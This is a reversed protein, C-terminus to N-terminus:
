LGGEVLYNEILVDNEPFEPISELYEMFATLLERQQVVRQIPLKKVKSDHYADMLEAIKYYSKDDDNFLEPLHAEDFGIQLLYDKATM